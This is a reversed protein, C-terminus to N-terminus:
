SERAQAEPQNRSGTPVLVREDGVRRTFQVRDLYELLPQVVRRSANIADRVEALKFPRSNGLRQVIQKLEDVAQRAIFQQPAFQVLRPDTRAIDELVKARQKSLGATSKLAAWAPPDFRAASVESVLKELLDADEQSMAPHFDRHAVYPGRTVVLGAHELRDFIIRGCGAACRSELWGIFRDRQVGPVQPNTQHHRTLFAMARKQLADIVEIHVERGALLSILRGSRRLPELLQPVAEPPVGIQCALRMPSVQDFGAFRIAEECRVTEDESEARMLSELEGVDKPRVRRSIPRVVQGGGLTVQATENRIIFRQDFAAVMPETFRLQVLAEDGPDLPEEGLIVLLAMSEQTGMCVRARCPRGLGRGHWGTTVAPAGSRRTSGGREVPRLSNLLRIRADIYRTATLYGPTALEMGREIKERDIGTLNLAARQGAAVDPTSSGHTQVERVKCTIGEPQLELTEGVAAKGSLVSGTVVTGRGHITFVRDIALRFVGDATRESLRAALEAITRRVDDLGVGSKASAAVIPWTSLTTGMTLAAIQERVVELREDDVLDAKSVVILGSAVGLLDLIEVHERTQPMVGDDAAVLLMGLDIGTAGAVMTRVFREHGPVDVIGVQLGDASGDAAPLQLHAFGLEITMGRAKEEPLRDPDTGTLATVLSSKGHDIHGATGLIIATMPINYRRTRSDSPHCDTPKEAAPIQKEREAAAIYHLISPQHFGSAALEHPRFVARRDGTPFVYHSSCRPTIRERGIM